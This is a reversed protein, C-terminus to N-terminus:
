VHARGIKEGLRRNSPRGRLGHIVARDGVERLKGLLRRLQRETVGVEEAAELQGILRKRAKKLAVLRDRERQTMALTGQDM